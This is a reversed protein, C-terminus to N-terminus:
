LKERNKVSNDYGKIMYQSFIHLVENMILHIVPQDLVSALVERLNLQVVDGLDIEVWENEDPPLADVKLAKGDYEAM